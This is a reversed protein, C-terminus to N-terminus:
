RIQRDLKVGDRHRRSLGAFTVAKGRGPHVRMRLVRREQAVQAVRREGALVVGRGLLMVEGRQLDSGVDGRHQVIEGPCSLLHALWAADGVGFLPRRQGGLWGANM